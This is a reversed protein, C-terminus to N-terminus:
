LDLLSHTTTTNMTSYSINVDNFQTTLSDQATSRSVAVLLAKLIVKRRVKSFENATNSFWAKSFAECVSELRAARNQASAINVYNTLFAIVYSTTAYATRELSTRLINDVHEKKTSSSYSSAQGEAGENNNNNNQHLCKKFMTGDGFLPEPLAEFFELLALALETVSAASSPMAQTTTTMMMAGTIFDDLLSASSSQESNLLLENSASFGCAIRLCNQVANKHEFESRSTFLDDKSITGFAFLSDVLTSIVLPVDPPFMSLPLLRIPKGFIPNPAYVGTLAVYADQCHEARIVLVAELSSSAGISKLTESGSVLASIQVSVSTEASVTLKRPSIDCVWKPADRETDSVLDDYSGGRGHFGVSFMVRNGYNNRPFKFTITRTVREYYQVVGFDCTNGSELIVKTSQVRNTEEADLKRQFDTLMRKLRGNYDVTRCKLNFTASVPKHDSHYIEDHDNYALLELDDGKWLIRDCWAPARKKKEERYNEKSVSSNGDDDYEDYENDFDDNTREKELNGIGSYRSTGPKFKYTMPFRIDGEKFGNFVNGMRMEQILQDHKLFPLYNNADSRFSSTNNNNNNNNGSGSAEKSSRLRVHELVDDKPANLRYNLDGFFICASADQIKMATSGANNYNEEATNVFSCKQLIEEANANRRKADEEKSGAALHACVFAVTTDCIKFMACCGGKNGLKIGNFGLSFGTAVTTKIPKEIICEERFKEKAFVTLFVGVLQQSIVKVYKHHNYLKGNKKKKDIDIDNDDNLCSLIKEEWIKAEREVDQVKLVKQVQLPVIEQFGVVYVDVGEEDNSDDSDRLWKNFLDLDKEPKKGNANFTCVRIRTTLEIKTYLDIRERKFMGQIRSNKISLKNMIQVKTEEHHKQYDDNSNYMDNKENKENTGTTTTTTTTTTTMMQTMENREDDFDNAEFTEWKSCLENFASQREGRESFFDFVNSSFREENM